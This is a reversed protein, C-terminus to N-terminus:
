KKDLYARGGKTWPVALYKQLDIETASNEAWGESFVIMSLFCLGGIRITKSLMGKEESFIDIWRRM